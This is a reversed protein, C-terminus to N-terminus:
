KTSKKRTNTQPTPKVYEIYLSGITDATNNAIRTIKVIGSEDVNVSLIAYPLNVTKRFAQFFIVNSGIPLEHDTSYWDGTSLTIDLGTILISYIPRGDIWTKGTLTETESINLDYKEPITAFELEGSGDVGLFKGADSISYDPIDSGGSGAIAELRKINDAMVRPNTSDPLSM